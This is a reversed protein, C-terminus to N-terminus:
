KDNESAWDFVIKGGEVKGVMMKEPETLMNRQTEDDLSYVLKIGARIVDSKNYGKALLHNLMERELDTPRFTEPNGTM